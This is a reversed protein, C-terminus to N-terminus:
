LAETAVTRSQIFADLDRKKYRVCSGIKVFPLAYRGTSRWVSLTGPKVDLYSAAGIEDLLVSSVCDALEERRPVARQRKSNKTM